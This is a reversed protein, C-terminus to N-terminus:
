PVFQVLEGRGIGGTELWPQYRVHVDRAIRGGRFVDIRRARSRYTSSLPASTCRYAPAPGCRCCASVKWGASRAREIDPHRSTKVDVLLPRFSTAAVGIQRDGTIYLGTAEGVCGGIQGRLCAHVVRAATCRATSREPGRAKVVDAPTVPEVDDVLALRRGPVSLALSLPATRYRVLLYMM